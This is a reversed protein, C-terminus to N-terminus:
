YPNRPQLIVELRDGPRAYSASKGIVRENLEQYKSLFEMMGDVGGKCLSQAKVAQEADTVKKKAAQGIKAAQPAAASERRKEEEVKTKSRQMEAQRKQLAHLEQQLFEREKQIQLRNIEECISDYEAKLEAVENEDNQQARNRQAQVNQRGNEASTRKLEKKDPQDSLTQTGGDGLVMLKYEDLLAPVSDQM